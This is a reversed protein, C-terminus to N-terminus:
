DRNLLSEHDDSPANMEVVAPFIPWLWKAGKISLDEQFNNAVNVPWLLVIM